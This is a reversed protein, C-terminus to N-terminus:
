DPRVSSSGSVESTVSPNGRYIVVSAGTATVRLQDSVTVNGDSAGSVYLNAHTVPFNFAKLVSAGSIDAKLEEGTGRLNLYSAGSVDLDVNPADIDLQCTSAGSLTFDLSELDDFGTVKSDSSGSFHAGVFTPMTIEIYTDHQRSRNSDFRIVLTSGQKTVILDDINRRDGRTKIEFYDGQRVTIQFADGMELRDFDKVSFQKETEQIPGPDERYCGTLVLASVLYLLLSLTKISNAM